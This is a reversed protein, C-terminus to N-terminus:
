PGPDMGTLYELAECSSLYLRFLDKNEDTLIEFFRPEKRNGTATSIKNQTLIKEDNENNRLLTDIATLLGNRNPSHVYQWFTRAIAGNCEPLLNFNLLRLGINHLIDAIDTPLTLDGKKVALLSSMRSLPSLSVVMEM